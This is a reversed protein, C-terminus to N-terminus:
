AWKSEEGAPKPSDGWSRKQLWGGGDPKAIAPIFKGHDKIWLDSSKWRELGAFVEAINSETIEGADVLSIWVQAGLNVGVRHEPWRQVLDDYRAYLRENANQDKRQLGSDSVSASPFGNGSVNGTGDRKQQRYRRVRETSVDSRYQWESWDHIAHKGDEVRDVLALSVMREVLRGAQYESIRLRFALAPIKPLVGDTPCATCMLNVWNRFDVASLGQIKPNDLTASHFRFWKNM